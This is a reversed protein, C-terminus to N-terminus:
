VSLSVGGGHGRGPALRQRRGAADKHGYRMVTVEVPVLRIRKRGPALRRRRGAADKHHPLPALGHATIAGFDLHDRVAVGLKGLDSDKKQMLQKAAGCAAHM